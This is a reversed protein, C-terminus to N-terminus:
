RYYPLAMLGGKTPGSTTSVYKFERISSDFSSMRISLVLLGISIVGVVSGCAVKAVFWETFVIDGVM